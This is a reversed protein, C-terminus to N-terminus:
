GLLLDDDLGILRRRDVERQRWRREEGFLDHRDARSGRAALDLGLDVLQQRHRYRAKVRRMLRDGVTGIVDIRGAQATQSRILHQHQDVALPAM